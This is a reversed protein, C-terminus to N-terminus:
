EVICSTRVEWNVTATNLGPGSELEIDKPCKLKPPSADSTFFQINIDHFSKFDFNAVIQLDLLKIAM